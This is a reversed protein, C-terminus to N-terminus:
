NMGYLEWIIRLRNSGSCGGGSDSTVLEIINFM